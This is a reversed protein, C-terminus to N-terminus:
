QYGFGICISYNHIKLRFTTKPCGRLSEDHGYISIVEELSENDIFDAKFLSILEEGSLREGNKLKNSARNANKRHSQM